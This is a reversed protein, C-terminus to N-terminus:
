RCIASAHGRPGVVHRGYDEHMDRKSSARTSCFCAVLTSAVDKALVGVGSASEHSLFIAGGLDGAHFCSKRPASVVFALSRSCFSGTRLLSRPWQTWTWPIPESPEDFTVYVISGLPAYGSMSWASRKQILQRGASDNVSDRLHHVRAYQPRNSSASRRVSSQHHISDAVGTPEREPDFAAGDIRDRGSKTRCAPLRECGGSCDRRDARDQLRHSRCDASRPQAPM